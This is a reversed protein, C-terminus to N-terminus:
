AHAQEGETQRLSELDRVKVFADDAWNVGETIAISDYEHTATNVWLVSENNIHISLRYKQRFAQKLNSASKKGRTCNVMGDVKARHLSLLRTIEEASIGSGSYVWVDFGLRQLETILIGANKRLTRKFIVGYPFPLAHDALKSGRDTLLVEDLDFSVCMQRDSGNLKALIDEDPITNVVHVPLPTLKMKSAAMWRHHGNLLMYGGTSLKEVTLKDEVVPRYGRKIRKGFADIYNSVIGENPGIKPDCFEDNPNPHLANTPLRRILLRALISSRVPRAIDKYSELDALVLRQYDASFAM